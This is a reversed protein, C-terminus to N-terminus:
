LKCKILLRTSINKVKLPRPDINNLHTYNLKLGTFLSHSLRYYLNQDFEFASIKDLFSVKGGKVFNTFASINTHDINDKFFQDDQSYYPNRSIFSIFPFSVQTNIHFSKNINYKLYGCLEESISIYYGFSYANAFNYNSLWIRIRSKNGLYLKFNDSKIINIGMNHSLHIMHFYHPTTTRIHGNPSTYYTYINHKNGKNRQYEIDILQFYKAKREYNLNLLFLSIDQHNKDSFTEDLRSHYALGGSLQLFNEAKGQGLTGLQHFLLIITLIKFKNNM